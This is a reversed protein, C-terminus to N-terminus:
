RFPPLTLNRPLWMRPMVLSLFTFLEGGVGRCSTPIHRRGISGDDDALIRKTSAATWAKAAVKPRFLPLSCCDAIVMNSLRTGCYKECIVRENFEDIVSCDFILSSLADTAFTVATRKSQKCDSGNCSDVCLTGIPRPGGHIVLAFSMRRSKSGDTALLTRLAAASPKARSAVNPTESSACKKCLVTRCERSPTLCPLLGSPLARDIATAADSNVRAQM